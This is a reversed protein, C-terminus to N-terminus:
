CGPCASPRSRRRSTSRGPRARCGASRRRACSCRRACRAARGRRDCIEGVAAFEDHVRRQALQEDREALPREPQVREAPPEGGRQDPRQGDQQQGPDGPPHGPRGQEAAHGPRSSASSPSSNTILRVASSSMKRINQTSAANPQRTTSRSRVRARSAAAASSDGPPNVAGRTKTVRHRIPAPTHMPSARAELHSAIQYTSPSAARTMAHSQPARRAAPRGPPSSAASFCFRQSGAQNPTSGIATYRTVQDPQNKVLEPYSRWHAADFPM